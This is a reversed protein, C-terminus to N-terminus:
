INIITIIVPVATVTDEEEQAVAQIPNSILRILTIGIRVIPLDIFDISEVILYKIM